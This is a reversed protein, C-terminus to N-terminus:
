MHSIMVSTFSNGKTQIETNEFNKFTKPQLLEEIDQMCDFQFSEYRTQMNIPSIGGVKEGYSM